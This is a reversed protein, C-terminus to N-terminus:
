PEPVPIPPDQPPTLRLTATNGSIHLDYDQLTVRASGPIMGSRSTGPYSSHSGAPSVTSATPNRRSNDYDISLRVLSARGPNIVNLNSIRAGFLDSRGFDDFSVDSASLRLTAGQVSVSLTGNFAAPFSDRDLPSEARTIISFDTYVGPASLQSLLMGSQGSGQNSNDRWANWYVSEPDSGNLRYQLIIQVNEGLSPPIDFALLLEGWRTLEFRLNLVQPLRDATYDAAVIPIQGSRGSITIEPQGDAFEQNLIERFEATSQEEASRPSAYFFVIGSMAEADSVMQTDTHIGYGGHSNGRRATGCYIRGLSINRSHIIMRSIPQETNDIDVVLEALDATVTSGPATRVTLPIDLEGPYSIAEVHGSDDMIWASVRFRYEGDITDEDRAAVINIPPIRNSEWGYNGGLQWDGGNLSYEFMYRYTVQSSAQYPDWALLIPFFTPGWQEIVWRLNEPAPLTPQPIIPGTNQNDGQDVSDPDRGEQSVNGSGSGDTATSGGSDTASGQGTTDPPSLPDSQLRPVIMLGAVVLIVVLCAATALILLKKRAPHTHKEKKDKEPSHPLAEEDANTAEPHSAHEPRSGSDPQVPQEPQTFQEPQTYQAPTLHGSAAPATTAVVTAATAEEVEAAQTAQTSKTSKEWETWETRGLQAGESRVWEGEGSFRVSLVEASFCSADGIPLPIAVYQGFSVGGRIFLNDYEHRVRGAEHGDPSFARVEVVVSIAISPSVNRLKLQVVLRPIRTDELLAGAVPFVPSTVPNQDAVLRYREIYRSNM